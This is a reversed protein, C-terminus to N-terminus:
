FAKPVPPTPPRAAPVARLPHTMVPQRPLPAPMVVYPATDPEWQPVLSRGGL